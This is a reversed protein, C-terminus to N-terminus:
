KELTSLLGLEYKWSLIRKVSEDIREESLEGSSVKELLYPIQTHYSSGLILDNGASIVQHAAEDQNVFNALGAMDLDDTMIVGNFGLEKRLIKNIKPSISSPVNDLKSLINHSVLVSDAGASIGAEFPLFDSQRLAELSRDDRIIATHSDGNNGYGPFHKLTSGVQNKDLEQVVSKVYKATTKADEGITRNYIFASSDTAVDAVPFLGANIGVSKLTEAKTKTDAVVAELGGSQYLSMPSQFPANLISSIRTVTGGEEDSGILLPIEAASQYSDTLSKIGELSQGEFDKGFLIYGGLHYTQIDEIQNGYPVRAWFLQGIKEELTMAALLNQVVKTKQNEKNNKTTIVNKETRRESTVKNQHNAFILGGIIFLFFVYVVIPKLRRRM